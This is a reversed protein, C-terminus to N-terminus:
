SPILRTGVLMDQIGRRPSVIAVLAGVAQAILAFGAGVLPATAALVAKPDTHQNSAQLELLVALCSGLLVYNLVCPGWAVLGRLGCRARSVLRGQRDRVQIGTLRFVPGGAFVFSALFPLLLSGAAVVSMRLLSVGPFATAVIIAPTFSITSYVTLETCISVALVGLRDDWGLTSTRQSAEQLQREAWDLTEQTTAREGLVRAFDIVGGPLTHERRCCEMMTQLLEVARQEGSEVLGSEGEGPEDALLPLDLLKLRGSQDVWIQELALTEPLTGDKLSAQLEHVLDLLLVQTEKWPISGVLEHLPAGQTAEIAHWQEGEHEGRQLWFARAPRAIAIRDSDFLEAGRHQVVVWVARALAEDRALYVSRAGDGGLRGVLRYSGLVPVNDLEAVPATVPITEFSAASSARESRVVRTGSALEHIGRYGNQRRVTALCLLVLLVGLAPYIQQVLLMPILKAILEEQDQPGYRHGVLFPLIATCFYWIGPIFLARLLSPGLRPSEGTNGIVRLGMMWKGVGGGVRSELAAFYGIYVLSNICIMLIQVWSQQFLQNNGTVGAVAGGLFLPIFIVIWIVIIDIFFAAMRRGLDAISTGRSSYPLLLRRLVSLDDPRRAPDKELTQAIIRDLPKPVEPVLTRLRPPPDAAIAAIVRAADGDFPARGAILYFLTAGVAYIDTRPDIRAGRVQEPAAFLPTGMFAGTRTLGADSVLSKSLGYDGVKARGHGDLFCNSPKVDRHIVGAAHAANLGEIVDLMYDVARPVELQGDRDIVEKLTGGSILEMVIYFQGAEEGAAYVFTSRPHSLSAALEAERLFRQATEDTRHVDKPLLKIAVHRGTTEDVAEHVVGMGGRGLEDLLRYGAIGNPADVTPRADRPHPTDHTLTADDIATSPKGAESDTTREPDLQASDSTLLPQGCHSCFRPVEGSFDIM